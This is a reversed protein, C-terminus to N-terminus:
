RLRKPLGPSTSFRSSGSSASAFQFARSVGAALSSAKSNDSYGSSGKCTKIIFPSPLPKHTIEPHPLLLRNANVPQLYLLPPTSSPSPLM